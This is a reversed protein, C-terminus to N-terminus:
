SALVTRWYDKIAGAYITGSRNYVHIGEDAWAIDFLPMPTFSKFTEKSLEKLLKKFPMANEKDIKAQMKEWRTYEKPDEWIHAKAKVPRYQCDKKHAIKYGDNASNGCDLCSSHM